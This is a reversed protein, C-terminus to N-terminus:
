RSFILRCPRILQGTTWNTANFYGGSSYEECIPRRCIFLSLQVLSSGAKYQADRNMAATRLPTGFDVRVSSEPTDLHLSHMKDAYAQAQAARNADDAQATLQLKGCGENLRLTALEKDPVHTALPTESVIRCPIRPCTDAGSGSILQLAKFRERLSEPLDALTTEGAAPAPPTLAKASWRWRQPTGTSNLEIWGGQALRHLLWVNDMLLSLEIEASQTVLRAPLYHYSPVRFDQQVLSDLSALERRVRRGPILWIRGSKEAYCLEALQALDQEELFPNIDARYNAQWPAHQSRGAALSMHQVQTFYAADEPHSYSESGSAGRMQEDAHQVLPARSLRLPAYYTDVTDFLLWTKFSAEKYLCEGDTDVTESPLLQSVTDCAVFALAAAACTIIQQIRKVLM